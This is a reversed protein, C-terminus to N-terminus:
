RVKGIHEIKRLSWGVTVGRLGSPKNPLKRRASREASVRTNGQGVTTAVDGYSSVFLCRYRRAM